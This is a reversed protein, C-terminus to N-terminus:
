EINFNFRYYENKVANVIKYITDPHVKAIKCVVTLPTPIKHLNISIYAMATLRSEYVASEPIFYENSIELMEIAKHIISNRTKEDIGLTIAIHNIFATRPNTNTPIGIKGERILKSMLTLADSVKKKSMCFEELEKKCRLDNHQISAFYLCVTLRPAIKQTRKEEINKRLSIYYQLTTDLVEQPFPQLSRLKATANLVNLKKMVEKEYDTSSTPAVYKEVLDEVSVGLIFGCEPCKYENNDVVLQTGCKCIESDAGDSNYDCVEEDSYYCQDFM